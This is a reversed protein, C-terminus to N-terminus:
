NKYGIILSWGYSSDKREIKQIGAANLWNRMEKETFTDGTETGVLMNISFIAGGAPSTRDDNM